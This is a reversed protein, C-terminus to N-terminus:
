LEFQMNLELSDCLDILYILSPLYSGTFIPLDTGDHNVVFNM